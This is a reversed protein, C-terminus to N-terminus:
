LAIAFFSFCIVSRGSGTGASATRPSIDCSAASSACISIGSAFIVAPFPSPRPPALRAVAPFSAFAPFRLATCVELVAPLSDPAPNGASPWVAFAGESAMTLARATHSSTTFPMRPLTSANISLISANVSGERTSSAAISKSHFAFYAPSIVSRTFVDHHRRIAFVRATQRAGSLDPFAVCWCPRAPTQRCFAAEQGSYLVTFESLVCLHTPQRMLTLANRQRDCRCYSAAM